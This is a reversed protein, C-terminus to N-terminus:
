DNNDGKIDNDIWRFLPVQKKPHQNEAEQSSNQMKQDRFAQSSAEIQHKSRLNKKDWNMLIRDMYKLNYVQNLVAERLALEVMDYSYGDEKFWYAITEIEIPSLPRGFEKEIMQVIEGEKNQAVIEEENQEEMQSLVSLKEYLPAFSYSDYQKGQDDIGTRISLNGQQLLRNMLQYLDGKEMNIDHAVQALDPVAQGRDEFSKIYILVLLEEPNLGLPRLQRLILNSVTTQGARLWDELLM